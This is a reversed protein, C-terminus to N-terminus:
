PDRLQIDHIKQALAAISLEDVREAIDHVQRKPAEPLGFRGGSLGLKENLAKAQMTAAAAAKHRETRRQTVRAIERRLTKIKTDASAETQMRKKVRMGDSSLTFRKPLGKGVFQNLMEARRRQAARAREEERRARRKAMLEQLKRAKAKLEKVKAKRSRRRTEEEDEGDKGLGLLHQMKNKLAKSIGPQEKMM